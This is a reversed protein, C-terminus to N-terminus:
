LLMFPWGKAGEALFKTPDQTRSIVQMASLPKVYGVAGVWSSFLEYPVNTGKSSQTTILDIHSQLANTFSTNDTFGPLIFKLVDTVVISAADM